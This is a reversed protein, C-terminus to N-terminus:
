KLFLMRRTKIGFTSKLRYFYVGSSFAAADFGISHKGASTIGRFITVLHQGAINYLDLEVPSQEPLEFTIRTQNNFPNPYNAFLQFSSPLQNNENAQVHTINGQPSMNLFYNGGYSSTSGIVVFNGNSTRIMDGVDENQPGGFQSQWLQNGNLDAAIMLIDINGSSTSTKLSITKTGAVVIRDSAAVVRYAIDQYVGGFVKHWQEVGSANTKVLFMDRAGQGFGVAFGAIALSGDSLEAVSNGEDWDSGGYLKDWIKNGSGDIKILYMDFAGSAGYSSTAGVIVFNGDNTSIIESGTDGGTSGYNRHWIENGSDDVRIVYIDSSGDGYSMTSGAVLYGSATKVLSTVNDDNKGGFTKQWVVQGDTGLKALYVDSGNAGTSTTNGAVMYGGDSTQLVKTVSCNGDFSGYAFSKSWQVDGFGDTKTVYFSSYFASPSTASGGLIYGGDSTQSVCRAGGYQDAFIREFTTKSGQLGKGRILLSSQGSRADSVISLVSQFDGSSPPAFAIDLILTELLKLTKTGPNNLLRFGNVNSLTISSIHLDKSDINTVSLQRTAKSNTPIQGM